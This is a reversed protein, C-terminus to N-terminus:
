CGRRCSPAPPPPPSPPCSASPPRTQTQQRCAAAFRGPEGFERGDRGGSGLRLGGERGWGYAFEAGVFNPLFLFISSELHRLCPKGEGGLM